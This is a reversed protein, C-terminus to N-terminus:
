RFENFQELFKDGIKKRLQGVRVKSLGLKQGISVDSEGSLRMDLIKRERDDEVINQVLDTYEMRSSSLVPIRTHSASLDFVVVPLYAGAERLKKYTQPDCRVIGDGALYKTVRGRITTILYGTVNPNPVHHDISGSAIMEVGDVMAELAVSVMSDTKLPSRVAFEAVLSMALKMHGQVVRHKAATVASEDVVGTANRLFPYLTLLEEDNTPEPLTIESFWHYFGRRTKSM